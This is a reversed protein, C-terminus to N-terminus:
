VLRYKEGGGGGVFVQALKQLYVREIELLHLLSSPQLTVNQGTVHSWVCADQFKM